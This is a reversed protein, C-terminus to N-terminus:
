PSNEDETVVHQEASMSLLLDCLEYYNAILHDKLKIKKLKTKNNTILVDDNLEEIKKTTLERIYDCTKSELMNYEVREEPTIFVPSLNSPLYDGKQAYTKKTHKM